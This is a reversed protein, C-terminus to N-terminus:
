KPVTHNSPFVLSSFLFLISMSVNYSSLLPSSLRYDLITQNSYLISDHFSFLPLMAFYYRIVGYMKLHLPSSEIYYNQVLMSSSRHHHRGIASSKSTINHDWLTRNGCRLLPSQIHFYTHIVVGFSLPCPQVITNSLLGPPSPTNQYMLTHNGCRLLPSM